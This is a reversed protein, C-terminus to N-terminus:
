RQYSLPLHARPYNTVWTRAGWWLVYLQGVDPFLWSTTFLRSANVLSATPSSRLSSGVSFWLTRHGRCHGFNASRIAPDFQVENLKLFNLYEDEFSLTQHHEEQRKIYERVRELQSFSVSYSWLM